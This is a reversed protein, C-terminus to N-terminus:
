PHSGPESLPKLRKRVLDGAFLEYIQKHEEARTEIAVVQHFRLSTAVFALKGDGRFAPQEIVTGPGILEKMEDPPYYHDDCIVSTEPFLVVNTGVEATQVSPFVLGDVQKGFQLRLYEFVVQTSLYSLDDSRGRPKSMKKVLSTLFTKLHLSDRFGADLLTLKPPEVLELKTLDLLKLQTTPTLAGSVVKDGTISRIESLCTERELACYLASIGAPTMRQSGAKTEPTPGLETHPSEEMKKAAEFSQVTRARYLMQGSSMVRVVESKLEGGKASLMGFVSDLFDKANPNFFRHRHRINAIFRDWKDDYINLELDGADLFYHREYGKENKLNVEPVHAMLDGFYPEDGLDFWESLVIDIGEVAIHDSGCEYILGLEYDTLDDETALNSDVLYIIHDFLSTSHAVLDVQKCYDCQGLFGKDFVVKKLQRPKICKSCIMRGGENAALRGDSHKSNSGAPLLRSSDAFRWRGGRAVGMTLKDTVATM